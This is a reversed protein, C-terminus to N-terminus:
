FTIIKKSISKKYFLRSRSKTVYFLVYYKFCCFEHSSFKQTIGFSIQVIKKNDSTTSTDIWQGELSCRAKNSKVDTKSSLPNLM